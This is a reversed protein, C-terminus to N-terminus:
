QSLFENLHTALKNKLRYASTSHDGAIIFDVLYITDEHKFGGIRIHGAISGITRVELLDGYSFAGSQNARGARNNGQNLTKLGSGNHNNNGVYGKQITSLIKQLIKKDHKGSPNFFIEVIRNEFIVKSSFGQPFELFYPTDPKISYPDEILSQWTIESSSEKEQSPTIRKAKNKVLDSLSKIHADINESVIQLETNPIDEGKELLHEMYTELKFYIPTATEYGEGILSLAKKHGEEAKGALDLIYNEKGEIALRCASPSAQAMGFM